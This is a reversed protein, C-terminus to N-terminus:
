LSSWRASYRNTTWGVYQEHCIVCSLDSCLVTTQVNKKLCTNKVQKKQAAVSTM